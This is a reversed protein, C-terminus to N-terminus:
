KNTQRGVYHTCYHGEISVPESINYCIKYDTGSDKAEQYMEILKEDNCGVLLLSLLIIYEM